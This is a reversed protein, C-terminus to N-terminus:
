PQKGDLRGLLYVDVPGEATVRDEKLVGELAFGAKEFARRARQNFGLVYAYVRRLGVPGFAYESFLRIAETGAGRGARGAAGVVIRLEAKRDMEDIAWLWVNGIHEGTVVDEIAMYLRDSSSALSDFWREHERETVPQRRGLLRM